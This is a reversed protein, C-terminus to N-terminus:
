VYFDSHGLEWNSFDAPIDGNTPNLSPFDGNAM